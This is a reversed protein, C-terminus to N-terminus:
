LYACLLPCIAGHTWISSRRNPVGHAHSHTHISTNGNVAVLLRGLNADCFSSLSVSCFPKVFVSPFHWLSLTHEFGNWTFPDQPNSKLLAEDTVTCIDSRRRNRLRLADAAFLLCRTTRVEVWPSGFYTEEGCHSNSGQLALSVAAAVSSRLLLSYFWKNLGCWSSDAINM